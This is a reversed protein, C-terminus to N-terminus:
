GPDREPGTGGGVRAPDSCCRHATGVPPADRGRSPPRTGVRRQDQRCGGPGVITILRESTLLRQAAACDADRGVLRTGPHTPVTEGRGPAPAARAPARQPHVPGIAGGAIARELEGLEKSPDLGTEAALRRRYDRATALAQPSQGTMAQARMLRLVAPERLPDTALANAALQVLGDVQGADLACSVLLDTVDQHVREIGVAMTAMAPLQTLGAFAPGRWLALADRLLACASAPDDGRVVRAAAVLARVREVDLGAPGLALRYGGDLTVLRGAGAGLHGRLRAIHSHLAASGSEPPTDPWVADVLHDSPVARGSAMALLALVARRKTGPVDVPRDDVVLRVPGLVDVQVTPGLDDAPM